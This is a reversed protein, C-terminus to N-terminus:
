LFRQCCCCCYELDAQQMKCRLSIYFIARLAVFPDLSFLQLGCIVWIVWATPVAVTLLLTSQATAGSMSQQIYHPMFSHVTCEMYPGAFPQMAICGWLRYMLRNSSVFMCCCPM